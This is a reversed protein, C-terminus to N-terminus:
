RTVQTVFTHQVFSSVSVVEKARFGNRLAAHLWYKADLPMVCPANDADLIM